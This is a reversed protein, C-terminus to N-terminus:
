SHKREASSVLDSRCRWTNSSMALVQICAANCSSRLKASISSSKLRGRTGLGTRLGAFYAAQTQHAKLCVRGSGQALTAGDGVAAGAGPTPPQSIRRAGAQPDFWPPAGNHGWKKEDAGFSILPCRGADVGVQLTQNRGRFWRQFHGTGVAALHVFDGHALRVDIAREGVGGM